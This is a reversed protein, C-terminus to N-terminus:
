LNSEVQALVERELEEACTSCEAIHSDLEPTSTGTAHEELERLTAHLM